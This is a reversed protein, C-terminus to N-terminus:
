TKSVDVLGFLFRDFYRCYLSRDYWWKAYRLPRSSLSSFVQLQQFFHLSLFLVFDNTVDFLVQLFMQFPILSINIM